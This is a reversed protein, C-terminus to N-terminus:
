RQYHALITTSAVARNFYAEKACIYAPDNFFGDATKQDPFYITFVRNIAADTESILVDSVRFDYRFGGNLANLIPTMAERYKAYADEDTVNLGVLFEVMQKGKTLEFSELRGM